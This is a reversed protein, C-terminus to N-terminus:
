GKRIITVNAYIYFNSSQTKLSHKKEKKANYFFMLRILISKKICIAPQWSWM